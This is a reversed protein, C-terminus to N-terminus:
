KGENVGLIERELSSKGRRGLELSRLTQADQQDISDKVHWDTIGMSEARRRLTEKQLSSLGGEVKSSSMLKACAKKVEADFKQKEDPSLSTKSANERQFHQDIRQRDSAKVHEGVMAQYEEDSM